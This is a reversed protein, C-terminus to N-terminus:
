KAVNELIKTHEQLDLFGQKSNQILENVTELQGLVEEISAENEESIASVNNVELVIRETSEKLTNMRHQAVYTHTVLEDNKKTMENFVETVEDTLGHSVNLKKQSLQATQQTQETDTRIEGLITKIEATNERAQIALKKIEEAVISFGRGHEGARAAEIAANLSLLNTQEAIESITKSIKSIRATKNHLNDIVDMTMDMADVVDAISSRMNNLKQQVTVIAANAEDSTEKSVGVSEAVTQISHHITNIQDNIGYVSKSQEALAETMQSVTTVMLESADETDGVQISLKQNFGNMFSLSLRVQELVLENKKMLELVNEKEANASRQLRDALRSTSIVILTMLIVVALLFIIDKSDWRKMFTEPHKLHIYVMGAITLMSMYIVARYDHYLGVFLVPLFLFFFSALHMDSLTVLFVTAFVVTCFYFMTESQFKTKVTLLYGTACILGGGLIITVTTIWETGLAINVISDLIWFIFLLRIMQLNKQKLVELDKRV